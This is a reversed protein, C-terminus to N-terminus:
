FGGAANFVAVSLTLQFVIQAVSSWLTLPRMRDVDMSVVITDGAKM